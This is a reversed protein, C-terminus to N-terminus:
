RAANGAGGLSVPGPARQEVRIDHLIGTWYAATAFDIEADTARPHTARLAGEVSRELRLSFSEKHHASRVAGEGETPAEAARRIRVLQANTLHLIDMSAAKEDGVKRPTSERATAAVGPRKPIRRL